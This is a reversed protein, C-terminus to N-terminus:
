RRASCKVAPGEWYSLATEYGLKRYAAIAPLNEDYVNLGITSIGEEILARTVASTTLQALGRGRHDPRTFINGVGAVSEKRSVVHTGAVAALEGKMRIGRFFGDNLQFEGFAVGASPDSDYLAQVEAADQLTLRIVEGDADHPRFSRLIMRLAHHPIGRFEFVGEAAHREFDRLNVYGGDCPLAALLRRTLDPDPAITFIPRISIGSFVLALSEGGATYWECMGFLPDDLDALAYLSWARNTNLISRIRARDTIPEVIIHTTDM